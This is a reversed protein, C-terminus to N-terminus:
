TRADAAVIINHLGINLRQLKQFMLAERINGLLKLTEPIGDGM